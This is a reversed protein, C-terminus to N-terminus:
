LCNNRIVQLKVTIFRVIAAKNSIVNADLYKLGALTSLLFFVKLFELENTVVM